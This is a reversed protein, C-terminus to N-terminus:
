RDLLEMEKVAQRIKTISRQLLERVRRRSLDVCLAIKEPSYGQAYLRIIAQERPSLRRMARRMRRIRDRVPGPLDGSPSYSHMSAPQRWIGYVNVLIGQPPQNFNDEESGIARCDEINKTNRDM